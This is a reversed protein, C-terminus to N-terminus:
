AVKRSESEPMATIIAGLIRNVSESTGFVEAIDPDLIIVRSKTDAFRNPRARDYDFEYEPQMEDSQTKKM